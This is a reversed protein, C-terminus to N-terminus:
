LYQGAKQALFLNAPKSGLASVSWGTNGCQLLPSQASHLRKRAASAAAVVLRRYNRCTHARVKNGGFNGVFTLLPGFDCTPLAMTVTKGRINWFTTGRGAGPMGTQILLLLLTNVSQCSCLAFCAHHQAAAGTHAGRDGRGSSAFPRKGAGTDIDTFLNAFVGALLNCPPTAHASSTPATLM